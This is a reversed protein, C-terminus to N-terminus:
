LMQYISLFLSIFGLVVSILAIKYAARIGQEPHIINAHIREFWNALRIECQLEKTTSDVDYNKLIIFGLWDIIIEPNSTAYKLTPDLKLQRYIKNGDSSICFWKGYFKRRNNKVPIFNHSISFWGLEVKDKNASSDIIHRYFNAKIPFNQNSNKM